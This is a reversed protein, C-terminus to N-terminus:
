RVPEKNRRKALHREYLEIQERAVTSWGYSQAAQHASRRMRDLAAPDSAMRDLAGAIAAPDSPVVLLGTVEDRVAEVVGPVASAVPALGCAMAEILSLPGGESLTPFLHVHHGALLKPLDDNAYRPVVTIRDYLGPEYDALVRDAGVGAGLFSVSWGPHRPLWENLAAAAYKVGKLEIYSGIVAIRGPETFPPPPPGVLADSIGNRVMEAREKAVGLRDVAYDADHRNLFLAVDADRLSRAVEYLRYGGHYLPYRWSLPEGSAVAQAKRCEAMTHELGHSRTLLLPRLLGAPSLQRLAGLLWADGTSADIFDFWERRGGHALRLAVAWPFAIM